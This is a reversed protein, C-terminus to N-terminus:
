NPTTLAVAVMTVVLKQDIPNDFKELGSHIWASM